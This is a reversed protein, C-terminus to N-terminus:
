AANEFYRRHLYEAYAAHDDSCRPGLGRFLEQYTLARFRLETGVQSDFREIEARHKESEPSPLDYWLYWLAFDDRLNTALGLAHKLLQPSDLYVFRQVKTQMENALRQCLPLGARSWMEPVPSFYKEKFPPKLSSKPTLWECFKSEVGLTFGSRLRIAIDLNPPSGDLGTPFQAEFRLLEVAEGVGIAGLLPGADRECWYDFVNAVLASSSHLASMKAPRTRGPRLESGSGRDFCGMATTSLPRWLNASYSPLYGKGDVELKKANAWHRQNALLEDRTTM